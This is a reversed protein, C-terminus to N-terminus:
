ARAYAFVLEETRVVIINLKMYDVRAAFEKFIEPKIGQFIRPLVWHM